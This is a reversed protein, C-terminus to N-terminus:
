VPFDHADDRQGLHFLLEIGDAEHRHRVRRVLEGSDDFHFGLTPGFDNAGGVELSLRSHSSRNRWCLYPSMLICASCSGAVVAGANIRLIPAASKIINAAVNM